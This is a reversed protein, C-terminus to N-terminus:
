RRLDLGRLRLDGRGLDREVANTLFRADALARREVDEVRLLFEHVRADREHRRLSVADDCGIRQKGRRAPQPRLRQIQRDLDVIRADVIM